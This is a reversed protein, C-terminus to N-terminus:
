PRAEMARREELVLDFPTAGKYRPHPSLEWEKQRRCLMPLIEAVSTHGAEILAERWHLWHRQLEGLLEAERVGSTAGWAEDDGLTSSPLLALVGLHEYFPERWAQIAANWFPGPEICDWRELFTDRDALLPAAWDFRLGRVSEVHAFFRRLSTLMSRAETKNALAKRPYWEYLFTRLDLEHAAELGVGTWESLYRLWLGANVLHREVTRRTLGRMRLAHEFGAEYPAVEFYPQADGEGRPDFVACALPDAEPGWTAGPRLSEPDLTGPWAELPDDVAALSMRFEGDAPRWGEGTLLDRIASEQEFLTAFAEFVRLFREASARPLGGAIAHVVNLVPYAGPGVVPLRLRRMERRAEAPIENNSYYTCAVMEGVPKTDNSIISGVDDFLAEPQDTVVLGYSERAAGMVVAGLAEGQSSEVHILEESELHQWPQARYFRAAAEFTAVVWADPQGWARWTHTIVARSARCDFVQVCMAVWAELVDDVPGCEIGVDDLPAPLHAGLTAVVAPEDIRVAKPRRGVREIAAELHHVLTPVLDEMEVSLTMLLDTHLVLGDAAVLVVTPRADPTDGVNIAVPLFGIQWTDIRRGAAEVAAQVVLDGGAHAPEFRGSSRCCTKYKKGSGCPCPANRGTKM